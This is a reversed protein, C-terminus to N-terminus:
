RMSVTVLHVGDHIRTAPEPSAGFADTVRVAYAPNMLDPVESLEAWRVTVAEASQPQASGCPLAPTCRFVLAVVGIRMNKYVGTLRGVTVHLGTEEFVERRVGNEFSENLELVGGPAEWHGNDRRQIVLVQGADNVVIGAVSVSHKPTDAM